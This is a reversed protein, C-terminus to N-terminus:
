IKEYRLHNSQSRALKILPLLGDDVAQSIVQGAKPQQKKSLEGWFGSGCLQQAERIEGPNLMNCGARAAAIVQQAFHTNLNIKKKM